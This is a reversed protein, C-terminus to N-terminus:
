QEVHYDPDVAPVNATPTTSTPTNNKSQKLPVPMVSVVNGKRDYGVRFVYGGIDDASIKLSDGAAGLTGSGTHSMVQRKLSENITKNEANVFEQASMTVVHHAGMDAEDATKFVQSSGDSKYVINAPNQYSMGNTARSQKASRAAINEDYVPLNTKPDIRSPDYGAKIWDIPKSGAVTTGDAKRSAAQKAYFERMSARTKLELQHEYDDMAVQRAGLADRVGSAIFNIAKQPDQLSGLNYKAAISQIFTAPDASGDLPMSQGAAVGEKYLANGSVSVPLAQPNSIFEDITPMAGMMFTPDSMAVKRYSDYMDALSKAAKNIPAIENSYQRRLGFLTNRSVAKLGNASLDGAVSNLTDKYSQLKQAAESGPTIYNEWETAQEGLTALADSVKDQEEKMMQLPAMREQLSFPQYVATIGHSAM